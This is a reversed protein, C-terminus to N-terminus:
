SLRKPCTRELFPKKMRKWSPAPVADKVVSADAYMLPLRAHREHRGFFVRLNELPVLEESLVLEQCLSVRAATLEQMGRVRGHQSDSRMKARGLTKHLSVQSYLFDWHLRELHEATWYEGLQERYHRYAVVRQMTARVLYKSLLDKAVVEASVGTQLEHLLYEGCAHAHIDLNNELVALAQAPAKIWQALHRM